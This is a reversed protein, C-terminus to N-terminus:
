EATSNSRTIWHTWFPPLTVHENVPPIAIELAAISKTNLVEQASGTSLGRLRNYGESSKLYQALFGSFEPCPRAFVVNACNADGFNEPVSCCDGRNQGVRVILIDGSKMQSKKTRQHFDDTVYRMADTVLQGSRVNQSRILPVGDRPSCFYESTAGVHGVSVRECVQDLRLLKWEAMLASTRWSQRSSRM